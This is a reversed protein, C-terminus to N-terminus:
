SPPRLVRAMLAQTMARVRPENAYGHLSVVYTAAGHTWVYAVHGGNLGGGDEYPLVLCAEVRRGGLRTSRCSSRAGGANGPQEVGKRVQLARVAPTWSVDFHWHGGNTDITTEGLTGIARSAFDASYGGRFRRQRSFPKAVIVDLTGGPILPPCRGAGKPAYAALDECIRRYAFPLSRTLGLERAKVPAVDTVTVTGTAATGAPRKGGCGAIAAVGIFVVCWKRVGRM